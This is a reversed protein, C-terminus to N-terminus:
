FNSNSIFDRIIKGDEPGQYVNLDPEDDPGAAPGDYIDNRLIAINHLVACAGLLQSVKEPKMRVEGHMLHFRRKFLGFCQEIKVRTKSHAENFDEQHQNAPNPYPTMLFPRCPYGSDGLLYGEDIRTHERELTNKTTVCPKCTLATSGKRNVYDNEYNTPAQLKVHTGDICGIVGPFGHKDYFAQKIERQRERSPWKIFRDAKSVLARTVDSVCRSVTSKPLGFTDGIIQLFSGSAYFRLAVLVQVIPALAQNRRTDRSLEERLFQTICEITDKRFRFRSKVEKDNLFDDLSGNFLRFRRERAQPYAEGVRCFLLDAM